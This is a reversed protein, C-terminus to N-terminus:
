GGCRLRCLSLFAVPRLELTATLTTNSLTSALATHVICPAADDRLLPFVPKAQSCAHTRAQIAEPGLHAPLHLLAAYTLCEAVTLTPVLTDDQAVLAMQLLCPYHPPAASNLSLVRSCRM